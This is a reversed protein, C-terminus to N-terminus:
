KGPCIDMKLAQGDTMGRTNFPIMQQRMNPYTVRIEYDTDKELMLNIERGPSGLFCWGIGRQKNFIYICADNLSPCVTGTFPIVLAVPVKTLTYIEPSTISYIDDSGKGGPRNSAFYTNGNNGAVFYFDDEPSNTPYRLNEPTSWQTKSGTAHFIDFGGMGTWGKSSFYLSGDPAITPFEEEEPSNIAPGCNVPTGWKGDGQKDSYWIDTGGVGGPMDSAFYLTNGDNSLAAHGLSYQDPKNYPFPVPKGWKGDKDKEAAFLELRRYGYKVNHEKM